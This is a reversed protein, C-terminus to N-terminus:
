VSLRVKVWRGFTAMSARCLLVGGLRPSELDLRQPVEDVLTGEVSDGGVHRVRLRAVSLSSGIREGGIHVLTRKDSRATVVRFVCLDDVGAGFNAVPQPDCVAIHLVNRISPYPAAEVQGQRTVIDSANRLCGEVIRRPWSFFVGDSLVSKLYDLIPKKSPEAQWCTIKRVKGHSAKWHRLAADALPRKEFMKNLDYRYVMACIQSLSQGRRTGICRFANTLNNRARWHNLIFQYSEPVELLKLVEVSRLDSCVKAPLVHPTNRVRKQVAAHAAEVAREVTPMLALERIEGFLRPWRELQVDPDSSAFAELDSRLESSTEM